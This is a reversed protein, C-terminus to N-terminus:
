RLILTRVQRTQCLNRVKQYGEALMAMGDHIFRTRNKKISAKDSGGVIPIGPALRQRKGFPAIFLISVVITVLGVIAAIHASPLNRLRPLLPPLIIRDLEYVTAKALFGM